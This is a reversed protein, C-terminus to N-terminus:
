MAEAIASPKTAPRKMSAEASRARGIIVGPAPVVPEPGCMCYPPRGSVPVAVRPTVVPARVPGVAGRDTSPAM